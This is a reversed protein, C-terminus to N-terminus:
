WPLAKYIRAKVYRGRSQSKGIRENSNTTRPIDYETKKKKKTKKKAKKKTKKVRMDSAQYVASIKKKMDESNDDPM